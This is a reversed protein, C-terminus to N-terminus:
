FCTDCTCHPHKGSQCNPSADHSPAISHSRTRDCYACEGEPLISRRPTPTEAVGGPEQGEPRAQAESTEGAEGSDIGSAIPTVDEFNVIWRSTSEEGDEAIAYKATGHAYVEDISGIKGRQFSVRTGNPYPPKIANREAWDKEADEIEKRAYSSFGDLEEAMALDCGWHCYDDLKKALEYGDMHRGGYRAIDAAYEDADEPEDLLGSKILDAVTQKASAWIWGISQIMAVIAACCAVFPGARRIAIGLGNM